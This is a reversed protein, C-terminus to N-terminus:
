SIDVVQVKLAKSALAPVLSSDQGSRELMNRLAVTVLRAM